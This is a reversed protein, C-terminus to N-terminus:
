GRPGRATHDAISEGADVAAALLATDAELTLEDHAPPANRRAARPVFLAAVGAALLAAAMTFLGNRYGSEHPLTGAVVGSVVITSVVQSGISGGITRINANMGTAVGTQEIPVADVVLNTMSSFALGMGLGSVFIAVVFQWVHDHALGLGGFGLAAIVGGAVLPVKSGVRATIKGILLGVVFMAVTSPSMAFGVETISLGFGYGAIKPTEMYAPVIVMMSYMGFGFLLASVNTWWVAPIRMMRVDVLPVSSRAEVMVWGAFIVVAAAFLGLVRGSHWGWEPGRSVGLLLSVLWGSLMVTAVINLRGPTRVPSEPVFLLTAFTAVVCMALPIWFLWHYSLNDVIPGALIIGLGAGIGLISSIGGIAGAVKERPFEDRVIGFALPFVAGGVGQVARAAILVGVSTALAAVLTACAVAIFV